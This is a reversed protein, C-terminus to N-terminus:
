VRAPYHGDTAADSFSYITKQRWTGNSIRQLEIVAGWGNSGGYTSVDYLNGAADMTLGAYAGANDSPRSEYLIKLSWQGSLSRVLEYVAGGTNSQAVGYLNGVSDAIVNAFPGIAGDGTTFNHIVSETQAVAPQAWIALLAPAIFLTLAVTSIRLAQRSIM